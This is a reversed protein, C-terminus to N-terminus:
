KTILKNLLTISFWLGHARHVMIIYCWQELGKLQIDQMNQMGCALLKEALFQSMTSSYRSVRPLHPPIGQSQIMNSKLCLKNIANPNLLQIKLRMSQHLPPWSKAVLPGNYIKILM